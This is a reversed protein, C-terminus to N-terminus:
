ASLAALLQRGVFETYAPPIAQRAEAKTMWGVGMAERWQLEPSFGLHTRSSARHPNITKIGHDCGTGEAPFSCEFLRHRQVRLGLGTGCVVIPRALPAGEVNEIVYPKGAAVLGARVQVLLKPKGHALHRLAASYGQCPPSAHITDFDHGFLELYELADAQVFAFPYRPQPYLDVGVVEFGARHYGVACGGAGCFLDLLRWGKGGQTTTRPPTRPTRPTAPPM